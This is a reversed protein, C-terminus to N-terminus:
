RLSPDGRHSKLKRVHFSAPLPWVRRSYSVYGDATSHAFRRLPKRVDREKSAALGKAASHRGLGFRDFRQWMHAPQNEDPERKMGCPLRSSIAAFMKNIDFDGHQEQLSRPVRERLKLEHAARHVSKALSRCQVDHITSVVREM